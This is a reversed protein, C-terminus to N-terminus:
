VLHVRTKVATLHVDTPRPQSVLTNNHWRMRPATKFRFRSIVRNCGDHRRRPCFVQASKWTPLRCAPTACCGFPRRARCWLGRTSYADVWFVADRLDRTGRRRSRLYFFVLFFCSGFLCFITYVLNYFLQLGTKPAVPGLVLAARFSTQPSHKHRRWSARTIVAPACTGDCTNCGSRPILLRLPTNLFKFYPPPM